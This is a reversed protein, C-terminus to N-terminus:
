KQIVPWRRPIPLRLRKRFRVVSRKWHCRILVKAHHPASSPQSFIPFPFSFDCCKRKVLWESRAEKLNSQEDNRNVRHAEITGNKHLLYFLSWLFRTWEFFGFSASLTSNIEFQLRLNEFIFSCDTGERGGEGCTHYGPSCHPSLLM